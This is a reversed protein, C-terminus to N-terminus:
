DGIDICLAIQCFLELVNGAVFEAPKEDRYLAVLKRLIEAGFGRRDEGFPFSLRQDREAFFSLAGRTLKSAALRERAATAAAQVPPVM